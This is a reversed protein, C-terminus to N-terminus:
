IPYYSNFSPTSGLEVKRWEGSQCSTLSYWQIDTAQYIESRVVKCLRSLATLITLLSHAPHGSNSEQCSCPIKEDGGHGSQSQPGGLRRDVPYMHSKGWPYLPQPMFSVVLKWRTGLNLICADIGRNKWTDEHCPYMKKVHYKTLCLSLKVNVKVV